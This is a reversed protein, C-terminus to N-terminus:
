IKIHNNYYKIFEIVKHWVSEISDWIFLTLVRDTALPWDMELQKIKQVVPMLWNWSSNYECDDLHIYGGTDPHEMMSLQIGRQMFEAILKNGEQIEKDTM